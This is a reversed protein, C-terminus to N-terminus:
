TRVEAPGPAVGVHDVTEPVPVTVDTSTDPPVVPRDKEPPGIVVVPVIVRPPVNATALPPVPTVVEVPLPDTTSDAEGVNVPVTLTALRVVVLVNASLPPVAGTVSM